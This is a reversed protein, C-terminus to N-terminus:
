HLVALAEYPRLTLKEALQPAPYNGILVRGNAGELDVQAPQATMNCYIDLTVGDLERRYAFVAPHDRLM